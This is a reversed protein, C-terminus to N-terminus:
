NIHSAAVFLADIDASTLGVAGGLAAIIPNSRDFSLAEAWWIMAEGGAADVAAQVAVLKGARSLAIKAQAPTVASPVVSFSPPLDAGTAVEYKGPGIWSIEKPGAIAQAAAMTAVIQKAM